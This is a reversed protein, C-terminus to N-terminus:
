ILCKSKNQCIYVCIFSNGFDFIYVDGSFTEHAEQYDSGGAERPGKKGREDELGWGWTFVSRSSKYIFPIM